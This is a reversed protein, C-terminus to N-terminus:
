GRGVSCGGIPPPWKDDREERQGRRTSGGGCIEGSGATEARMLFLSDSGTIGEGKRGVGKERRLDAPNAGAFRMPAM